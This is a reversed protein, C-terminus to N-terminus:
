SNAHKLLTDRFKCFSPSCNIEINMYETINNAWAIKEKGIEYYGKEKLASSGGSYIADALLEWTGCISDQRYRSLIRRDANPYASFIARQDGLLWAEIEEIALCFEACPRPNCAWYIKNLESRFAAEDKNDLDCVIIIVIDSMSGFSKGCGQLLKPLNRLLLKTRVDTPSTMKKPLTGLGHYSHIKYSHEQSLIKYFLHSLIVEGSKDEVFIEFHM